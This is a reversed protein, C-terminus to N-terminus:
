RIVERVSGWLPYRHPDTRHDAVIRVTETFETFDTTASVGRIPTVFWTM